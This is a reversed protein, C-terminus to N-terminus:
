LKTKKRTSGKSLILPKVIPRISRIQLRSTYDLLTYKEIFYLGNACSSPGLKLKKSSLTKEENNLELSVINTVKPRDQNKSECRVRTQISCKGTCKLNYELYMHSLERTTDLLYEFQVKSAKDEKNTLTIGYRDSSLQASNGVLVREYLNSDLVKFGSKKATSKYILIPTKKKLISRAGAAPALLSASLLLIFKM